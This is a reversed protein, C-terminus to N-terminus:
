ENLVYAFNELFNVNRVGQYCKKGRTRILPHSINNKKSVKAYTSFSHGKIVKECEFPTRAGTSSM